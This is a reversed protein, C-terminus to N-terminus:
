NLVALCIALTFFCGMTFGLTVYNGIDVKCEDPKEKLECKM